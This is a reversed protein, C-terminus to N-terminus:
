LSDFNNFALVNANHRLQIKILAGIFCFHLTLSVNFLTYVEPFLVWTGVVFGKMYLVFRILAASSLHAIHLILPKLDCHPMQMEVVIAVMGTSISTIMM